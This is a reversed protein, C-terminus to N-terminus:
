LLLVTCLPIASNVNVFRCFCFRFTKMDSNNMQHRNISNKNDKGMDNLKQRIHPQPPRASASCVQADISLLRGNIICSNTAIYRGNQRTPLARVCKSVDLACVSLRMETTEGM